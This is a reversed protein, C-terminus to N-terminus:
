QQGVNDLLVVDEAPYEGTDVRMFLKRFAPNELPAGTELLTVELCIAERLVQVERQTILIMKVLFEQPGHELFDDGPYRLLRTEANRCILKFEINVVVRATM